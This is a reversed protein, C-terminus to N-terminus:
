DSSQLICQGVSAPITRKTWQMRTVPEKSYPEDLDKSTHAKNKLYYCQESFALVFHHLSPQM